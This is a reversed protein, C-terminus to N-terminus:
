IRQQCGQRVSRCVRSVGRFGSFESSAGRGSVEVHEAQVGLVGQYCQQCRELVKAHVATAKTGRAIQVAHVALKYKIRGM